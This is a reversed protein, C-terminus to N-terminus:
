AVAQCSTNVGGEKLHLVDETKKLGDIVAQIDHQRQSRRHKRCLKLTVYCLILLTTAALGSIIPRKSLGEEMQVIYRLNEMSLKQLYPLSLIELHGTVNLLASSSPGSSKRVFNKLNRFVSGNVRVEKDFTLLFTGSVTQEDVTATGENIIASGSQWKLLPKAVRTL